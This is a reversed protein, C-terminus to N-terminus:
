GRRAEVLECEEVFLTARTQGRVTQVTAVKLKEVAAKARQAIENSADIPIGSDMAALTEEVLGEITAGNLKSMALLALQMWPVSATNAREFPKGVSITGSIRVVLDVEYNGPEPEFGTAVEKPLEVKSLALLAAPSKIPSRFTTTM